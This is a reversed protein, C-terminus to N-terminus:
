SVLITARGASTHPIYAGEGFEEIASTEVTVRYRGPKTYTIKLIPQKGQDIYGNPELQIQQNYYICRNLNDSTQSCINEEIWYNKNHDTRNYLRIHHFNNMTVPENVKASDSSISSYINEYTYGDDHRFQQKKNIGTVAISGDNSWVKESIVKGKYIEMAFAHTCLSITAAICILQKLNM